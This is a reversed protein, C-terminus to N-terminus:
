DSILVSHVQLHSLPHVSQLIRTARAAAPNGSVQWDHQEKRLDIDDSYLSSRDM